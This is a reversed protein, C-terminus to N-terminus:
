YRALDQRDLLAGWREDYPHVLDTPGQADVLPLARNHWGFIGGRLNYIALAGREVLATGVDAAMASSRMGVSCYLVVKRGRVKGGLAAVVESPWASPSVRLADAIRSVAFEEEERVDILLPRSGAPGALDAALAEADLQAVGPYREEVRAEVEALGGAGASSVAAWLMAAVLLALAITSALAARSRGNQM